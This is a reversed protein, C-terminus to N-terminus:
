TEGSGDEEMDFLFRAAELVDAERGDEAAARIRATPQHLIKQLISHTMRELKERDDDSLHDLQSMARDLESQRVKEARERLQKIFPVARLGAYWRWFKDVEGDVIAQAKPMEAKRREHNATVIHQLDDISYLFVNPLQAIAPEVDRPIAIDVIFLPSKLKAPMRRRFEDLTIMAHPAATSTIVIDMEPLQDWFDSFAVASGGFREAVKQARTMNRSAVMVSSVGEDVLCELTLEGMDGAGIVMGHRGRLSGFIKRALEVAASPISAAGESLRTESRVRGGVSLATQFLRNFVARVARRQGTLSRAIEYADRVQGQIQVEGLVMSDLGSVVKFLHEVAEPGRRVYLYRDAPKELERAQDALTQIVHPIAAEPDSLHLYFETRNCTSILATEAVGNGELVRSLADTMETSAFAFQERVEVPATRHNLGVVAFPM